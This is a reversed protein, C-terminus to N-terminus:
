LDPHAPSCPFGATTLGKVTDSLLQYVQMLGWDSSTETLSFYKTGRM